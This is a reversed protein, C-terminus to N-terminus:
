PMKRWYELAVANYAKMADIMECRLAGDILEQPLLPDSNIARIVSQGLLFSERAAAAISMNEIRASSEHMEAIWFRYGAEIEAVPWLGRFAADDAAQARCGALLLAQADLGLGRLADFLAGQERRLNDPRVWLGSASAKFGTLRLAQERALLRRRDTRGLHDVLTVIWDGRWPRVSQEVEAWARAKVHLAEAQPGLAYVGREVQRVLGERALRGLAVRVAPADIDFIAARDVLTAARLPTPDATSLFWLALSRPTVPRRWDYLM